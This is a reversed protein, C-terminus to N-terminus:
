KLAGLFRKCESSNNINSQGGLSAPRDQEESMKFSTHFSKFYSREAEDKM